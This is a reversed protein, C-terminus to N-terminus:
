RAAAPETRPPYLMIQTCRFLAIIKGSGDEKVEADWVQTNRGGHAMRADCYIRGSRATSIFNSKLEITTFNEASVPLSAITGYGCCTDALTVVTAAHLYGNPALHHPCIDLHATTHGPEVHEFVLGLHEVLTGRGRRHAQELTLAVIVERYRNNDRITCAAARVLGGPGRPWHLYLLRKMEKGSCRHSVFGHCMVHDNGAGPRGSRGGGPLLKAPLMAVLDANADRFFAGLHAGVHQRACHRPGAGAIFKDGDPPLAAGGHAGGDAFLTEQQQATLPAVRSGAMSTLM